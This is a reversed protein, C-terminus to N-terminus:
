ADGVISTIRGTGDCTRCAKGDRRGSGGCDPCANEATQPSGPRAEDGPKRGKNDSM